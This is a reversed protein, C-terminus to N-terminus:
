IHNVFIITSCYFARSRYSVFRSAIPHSTHKGKIGLVDNEFPIKRSHYTMSYFTGKTLLESASRRHIFISANQTCHIFSSPHIFWPLTFLKTHANTHHFVFFTFRMLLPFCHGFILIFSMFFSCFRPFIIFFKRFHAVLSFMWVYSLDFRLVCCMFTSTIFNIYHQRRAISEIRKTIEKLSLCFVWKTRYFCIKKWKKEGSRFEIGIGIGIRICVDVMRLSLM